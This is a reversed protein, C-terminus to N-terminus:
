PIQSKGRGSSKPLETPGDKPESKERQKNLNLKKHDAPDFSNNM